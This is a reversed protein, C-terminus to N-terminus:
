DAGFRPERSITIPRKAGLTNAIFTPCRMAITVETTRYTRCVDLAPVATGCPEAAGSVFGLSEAFKDFLREGVGATDPRGDCSGSAAGLEARNNLYMLIGDRRLGGASTLISRNSGPCSLCSIAFRHM